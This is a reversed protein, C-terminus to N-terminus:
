EDDKEEEAALRDALRKEMAGYDAVVDTKTGDAIFGEMKMKEHMMPFLSSFPPWKDIDEPREATLLTVTAGLESLLGYDPFEDASAANNDGTRVQEIFQTINFDASHYPHEADAIIALPAWIYERANSDGIEDIIGKLERIQEALQHQIEGLEQVIEERRLPTLDKM